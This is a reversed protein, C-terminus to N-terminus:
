LRAAKAAPDGSQGRASGVPSMWLIVALGMSSLFLLGAVTIVTLKVVAADSERRDIEADAM